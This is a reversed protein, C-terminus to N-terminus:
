GYVDHRIMESPVQISLPKIICDVKSDLTEQDLPTIIAVLRKDLDIDAVIGCGYLANENVEDLIKCIVKGRQGIMNCETHIGTYGEDHDSEQKDEQSQEPQQDILPSRKLKVLHVWSHHLLELVIGEKLPYSSVCFVSVKKLSIWKTSLQMIPKYLAEPILAMYALQLATRNKSAVSTSDVFTFPLNYLDYKYHLKMQNQQNSEYYFSARTSDVAQPSLDAFVTRMSDTEVNLVLLNTPQCIKILDTLMALGVNRIHGMTNIFIPRKVPQADRHEKVRNFVYRSNEIYMRPNVAMNTGGVSSLVVPEHQGVNLYSPSQLPPASARIIHASIMGPSTMECQGPDYDIYYAYIEDQAGKNGGNQSEDDDDMMEIEGENANKQSSKSMQDIYNNVLFRLLSSKGNNKAGCSMVISQGNLELKSAIQRWLSTSKHLAELNRKSNEFVIGHGTVFNKIYKAM